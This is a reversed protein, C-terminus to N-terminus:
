EKKEFPEIVFDEVGSTIKIGSVASATEPDALIADKNVEEKTRIFQTLGLKKLGEIVTSIKSLGVKPPRTRWSIKGTQLDCTKTKGNKTLEARNAEAWAHVAEQMDSIGTDLDHLEDKYSDVIKAIEDNMLTSLRKHARQSIGIKAILAQAQELTSCQLKNAAKKVRAM